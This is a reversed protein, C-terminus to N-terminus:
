GQIEHKEHRLIDLNRQRNCEKYYMVKCASLTRKPFEREVQMQYMAHEIQEDLTEDDSAWVHQLLADKEEQTWNM